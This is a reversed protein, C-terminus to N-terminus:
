RGPSPASAARTAGAATAATTTERAPRAQLTFSRPPLVSMRTPRDEAYAVVSLGAVSGRLMWRLALPITVNQDKTISPLVLRLLGGDRLELSSFSSRLQSLTAGDLVSGAPLQIEVAVRTAATQSTGTVTLELAAREGAYGVDGQIALSVPGESRPASPRDYVAEWRAILAAGNADQGVARLAISAERADGLAWTARGNELALERTEGNVTARVRTPAELGFVGFAADALLWFAVEGGARMALHARVAVGRALKQALPLEGRQQAALAMAATAALVEELRVRGEGAAVLAGRAGEDVIFPKAREYMQRARADTPDTLLLAAAARALVTPQAAHTTHISRLSERATAIFSAVADVGESENPAAAGSALAALTAAQARVRGAVPDTDPLAVDLSSFRGRSLSLASQAQTDEEDATAWHVLAAATSLLPSANNSRGTAEGTVDGSPSQAAFVADRLAVPVARGSLTYAWAILAPDTRRVRDFEPDDALGAPTSILLRAVTGRAGAQTSGHLTLEEGRAAGMVDDRLALGGFDSTVPATASRLLAGNTDLVRVTVAGRGVSTADVTIPVEASQGAGVSIANTATARVSGDGSVAVSYRHDNADLNTITAVVEIPEGIRVRPVPPRLEDSRPSLPLSILVPTGASFTRTAYASSGDAGFAHVIATWTRPEDDVRAEITTAGTLSVSPRLISDAEYPGRVLALAFNHDPARSPLANWNPGASGGDGGSESESDSYEGDFEDGFAGGLRAITARGLEVGRLRAILGDEDVARAYAGGSPLVRAFPDRVDDGTGIREDPGGSVLEFGPVPALFAFRSRGGPAARLEFRNGWGDVMDDPSITTSNGESDEVSFEGAAAIQRLWVTPDGRWSWRLDLSHQNVFQRLAVLLVFMRKRTIRRAVNDFTFSADLRRLDDITMPAGGLNRAGGTTDESNSRLIADFIERNFEWRAGSRQGVDARRTRVMTAIHNEIRQFILALRGEVFRASARYPDRLTGWSAPEEPAPLDVLRGARVLAPAGGDRVVLSAVTGAILTDSARSFDMRLDGLGRTDDNGRLQGLLFDAGARPVVSVMAALASSSGPDVVIQEGNASSIGVASRQGPHSWVATTGGLVPTFLPGFLPRARVLLLGRAHEPVRLTLENAGAAAIASVIPVQSGRDNSVLAVHVPTRAVSAVRNLTVHLEAGPQVLAGERVRVRLTGDPEIPACANLTGRVSGEEFSLAFGTATTGGCPDQPAEDEAAPADDGDPDAVPRPAPRTRAPPAAGLTVDLAVVGSADTTGRAGRGFRPGTLAVTVGAGAASGDARVVRAYIRGPLGEIVSGGEISAAGFLGARAIRVSTNASADGIGVRSASVSVGLDTPFAGVALEPAVFQFSATGRADTRVTPEETQRPLRPIRSSRVVADAVPRGDATRVSVVMRVLQRPEVISQEPAARVILAPATDFLTQVAHTANSSDHESTHQARITFTSFSSRPLSFGQSVVGRADTRLEHRAGVPRNRNDVLTVVVPANAIPRGTATSILRAWANVRGGPKVRDRDSFLLLQRGAEVSVDLDFQRRINSRSIAEFVVHFSSPADEPIDFGIQARGFADATAEAMARERSLTSLVRVRTGPAVRLSSLGTVEFVGLQWQVHGGRVARTPGEISMELGSVPGGTIRRVLTQAHSDTPNTPSAPSALVAAGLAVFLSRRSTIWPARAM